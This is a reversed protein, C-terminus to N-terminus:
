RVPHGNQGDPDVTTSPEFRGSELDGIARDVWAPPPGFFLNRKFRLKEAEDRDLERAIAAVIAEEDTTPTPRVEPRPPDYPQRIRLLRDRM